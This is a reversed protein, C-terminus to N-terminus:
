SISPLPWLPYKFLEGNQYIKSCSVASTYHNSNKLPRSFSREGNCFIFAIKKLKFQIKEPNLKLNRVRARDLLALLCKVHDRESDEKTDGVGYVLLGNAISVVGELGEVVEHIRKQIEEDAASVGYPLYNWKYQAM